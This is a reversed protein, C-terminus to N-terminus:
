FCRCRALRFKSLSAVHLGKRLRSAIASGDKLSNSTRLTPRCAGAGVLVVLTGLTWLVPHSSSPKSTAENAPAEPTARADFEALSGALATMTAEGSEASTQSPNQAAAQQNLREDLKEDPVIVNEMKDASFIAQCESCRVTPEAFDDKVRWLAGCAPCRLVKAM